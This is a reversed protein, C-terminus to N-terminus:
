VKLIYVFLAALSALTQTAHLRVLKDISGSVVAQGGNLDVGLLRHTQPLVAFAYFLTCFGMLVGGLVWWLGAGSIGAALGTLSAIAAFSTQFVAPRPKAFLLYSGVLEAGGQVIAPHEVLSIYTAAGAFLACCFLAIPKCTFQLLLLTTDM